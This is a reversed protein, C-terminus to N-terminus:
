LQTLAKGRLRRELKSAIKYGYPSQHLVPQLREAISWVDRFSCLAITAQIIYNGFSDQIMHLLKEADVDYLEDVISRQADSSAFHLAKEVVNSAYKDTALQFVNGLFFDRICQSNSEKNGMEFMYQAVYNAFPDMSYSVVNRQVLTYIQNKRELTCRELVRQVVICGQQTRSVEHCKKIIVDVLGDCAEATLNDLFFQIIRRSHLSSTCLALVVDEEKAVVNVFAALDVKDMQEMLTRVVYCGHPDLLLTTAHPLIENCVAHFREVNFDRLSAQLYSSGYSTKAMEHMTGIIQEFHNSAVRMPKEVNPMSSVVRRSIARPPMMFNTPPTAPPMLPTAAPTCQACGPPCGYAYHNYTPDFSPTPQPVPLSPLQAYPNHVYTYTGLPMPPPISSPHSSRQPLPTSDPFPPPMIHHNDVLPASAESYPTPPVVHPQPTTYGLCQPCTCYSSSYQPQHTTSPYPYHYTSQQNMM